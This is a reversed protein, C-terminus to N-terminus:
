KENLVEEAKKYIREAITEDPEIGHWIRFSEFAQYILMWLGNEARAGYKHAIKMLETVSPNYILDFVFTDKKVSSVVSEGIKPSMGVPTANVLIDYDYEEYKSLSDYDAGIREALIKAKNVDRALIRVEGAGEMLTKKAVSNVAGGAGLILIRKDKVSVNNKELAKIFGVGDTNYGYTKVGDFRITNVARVSLAYPDVCDVSELAAVKNPITVNLGKVGSKFLTKTEEEFNEPLIDIKEYRCDLNYYEFLMNHILPSLSHNVPHGTVAYINTM